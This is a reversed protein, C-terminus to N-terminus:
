VKNVQLDCKVTVSFVTLSFHRLGCIKDTQCSVQCVHNVCWTDFVSNMESDYTLANAKSLWHYEVPDWTMGSLIVKIKLIQIPGLDDWKIDCFKWFIHLTM